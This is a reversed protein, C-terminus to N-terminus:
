KRSELTLLLDEVDSLAQQLAEAKRKADLAAGPFGRPSATAARQYAQAVTRSLTEIGVAGDIILDRLGPSHIDAASQNSMKFEKKRLPRRRARHIGM